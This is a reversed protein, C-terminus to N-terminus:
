EIRSSQWSTLQWRGSTRRYLSVYSIELNRDAGNMTVRVKARGTIRADDGSEQVLTESPEISHYRLSGSRLRELFQQKSERAGTSHVYVLDEALLPALASLNNETMLQFRRAHVESVSQLGASRCAVALLALVLARRM